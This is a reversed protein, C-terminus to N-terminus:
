EPVERLARVGAWSRSEPPMAEDLAVSDLAVDLTVTYEDSDDVVVWSLTGREITVVDDGEPLDFALSSEGCGGSWRSGAPALLAVGTDLAHTVDDEVYGAVHVVMLDGEHELAFVTGGTTSCVEPADAGALLDALTARRDTAASNTDDSDNRTSGTCALTLILLPLLRM